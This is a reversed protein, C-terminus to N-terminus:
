QQRQCKLIEEGTIGLVYQDLLKGGKLFSARNIGEDTLGVRHAFRRATPNDSPVHTIVKCCSTNQVMWLLGARAASTAPAGWFAPLVCTHVEWFTPTHAHYFFVGVRAGQHEPTLYYLGPHMIPAFDEPDGANDDAIHPWIRRHTMTARIFERDFSRM